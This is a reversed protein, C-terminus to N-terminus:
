MAIRLMRKQDVFLEANYKKESYAQALFRNSERKMLDKYADWNLDKAVDFTPLIKQFYADLHENYCDDEVNLANVNSSVFTIYEGKLSQFVYIYGKESCHVLPFLDLLDEEGADALAKSSVYYHGPQMIAGIEQLPVEVPKMGNLLLCKDGSRSVFHWETLPLLASAMVLMREELTFVVDHYLAESLTTTHGKYRNRINVVSPNRKDGLLINRKRNVVNAQLSMCLADDPFEKVALGVMPCFLDNVWDGFALPRKSDIRNIFKHLEVARASGQKVYMGSLKAYLVCFLYQTSIEFFDLMYNMAKGYNERGVELCVNGIPSALTYPLRNICQDLVDCYHRKEDASYEHLFIYDM